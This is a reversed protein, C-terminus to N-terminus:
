DKDTLCYLQVIAEDAHMAALGCYEALDENERTHDTSHFVLLEANAADKAMEIITFAKEILKEARKLEKRTEDDMKFIYDTM